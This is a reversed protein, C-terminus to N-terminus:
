LHWLTQSNDGYQLENSYQWCKTFGVVVENVRDPHPDEDQHLSRYPERFTSLLLSNCCPSLECVRRCKAHDLLTTNCWKMNNAKLYTRITEYSIDLGKQKLKAQGQRLTLDPNRSFLKVIKKDDKKNVKCISGHEPLDDVNKVVNYRISEVFCDINRYRKVANFFIYVFYTGELRQNQKRGLWSLKLALNPAFVHALIRQIFNAPDKGGCTFFMNEPHRWGILDSMILLYLSGFQTSFDQIIKCAFIYTHGVLAVVTPLIASQGWRDCPAGAPGHPAPIAQCACRESILPEYEGIKFIERDASESQNARACKRVVELRIKAPMRLTSHMADLARM